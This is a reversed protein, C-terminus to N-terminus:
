IRFLPPHFFSKQGLCLIRKDNCGISPVVVSIPYSRRLEKIVAYLAAVGRCLVRDSKKFVHREMKALLLERKVQALELEIDTLPRQSKGIEGLNSTKSAKLWNELLFSKV